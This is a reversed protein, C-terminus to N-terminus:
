CTTPLSTAIALLSGCFLAFRNRFGLHRLVRMFEKMSESVSGRSILLSMDCRKIKGASKSKDAVSCAARRVSGEIEQTHAAMSKGRGVRKPAKAM